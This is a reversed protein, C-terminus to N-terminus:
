MTCEVPYRESRESKRECLTSLLSEREKARKVSGGAQPPVTRM